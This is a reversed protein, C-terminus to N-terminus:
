SEHDLELTRRQHRIMRDYFFLSGFAMVLSGVLLVGTSNEAHTSEMLTYLALPITRTEGEINGALVVTAGFEGLARAFMLLAGALIGPIALPLTVKLFIWKKRHGLTAALDEYHPDVSEFANRAALVYLPMGMVLAALVVGLFHFPVSIGLHSLLQGLPKSNGFVKLLIFGTVVPPTVLPVLLLTGLVSKGFFSKRALIWGFFVAIPAGLFVCWLGVFLSLRIASYPNPLYDM